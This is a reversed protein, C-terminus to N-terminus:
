QWGRNPAMTEHDNFCIKSTGARNTTIRWYYTSTYVQQGKYRVGLTGYNQGQILICTSPNCFMLQYKKIKATRGVQM